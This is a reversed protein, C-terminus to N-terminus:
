CLSFLRLLDLTNGPELLKMFAWGGILLHAALLLVRGWGLRKVIRVMM